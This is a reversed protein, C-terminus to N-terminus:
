SSGGRQVSLGSVSILPRINKYKPVFSKSSMLSLGSHLVPAPLSLAPHKRAAQSSPHAKEPYPNLLCVWIAGFGKPHRQAPMHSTHFYLHGACDLM